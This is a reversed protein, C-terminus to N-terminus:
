LTTLASLWPSLPSALSADSAASEVPSPLFGYHRKKEWSEDVVKEQLAKARSPKAKTWSDIAGECPLADTALPKLQVDESTEADNDVHVQFQEAGQVSRPRHLAEAALEIQAFRNRLETLQKELIGLRANIAPAMM